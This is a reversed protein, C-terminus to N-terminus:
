KAVYQAQAAGSADRLWLEDGEITFTATRPLAALYAAEQDMLDQPGAMRTTTIQADITMKAGSVTYKTSYENISANGALSGDTGFKATISSSAALSQLANKGNNYATADWETGTLSTPQVATYVLITKGQADNLTLSDGTVAFTAAKALAAFYAQEQAMAAPPGAMLTAAAQSITIKGGSATTYTATYRNVGGSGSVKGASFEATVETGKQASMTAVGAISTAKWVKGELAKSDDTGSGSSCGASALAVATLAAALGLVLVTRSRIM